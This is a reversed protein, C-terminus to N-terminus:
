GDRGLGDRRDPDVEEGCRECTGHPDLVQVVVVGGCLCTVVLVYVGERYTTRIGPRDPM